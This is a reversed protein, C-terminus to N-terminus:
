TGQKNGFLVLHLRGSYNYGSSLVRDIVTRGLESTHEASRGCPMIWIKQSDIVFRRQLEEIEAFEADYNTTVVFKFASRQLQALGTLADPVIRDSEEIGANSLKPSVVVLTCLNTFEPPPLITGNTEFEIEYEASRLERLVPLLAKHQLLPEGGTFVVSRATRQKIESILDTTSIRTQWNKKEFVVDDEHPRTDSFRWTYPTDCWRCYLNCASLRVFVTIRGTRPGEGQISTFIEPSGDPMAAITLVTNTEYDPHVPFVESPLTSM